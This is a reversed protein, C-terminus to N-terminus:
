EVDGALLSDSGGDVKQMFNILLPNVQDAQGFHPTHGGGPITHFEAQSIMEGLKVGLPYPFNDDKEGWIIQMPVDKVEALEEYFPLYNYVSENFALSVFAFECGRYKFQEKILPIFKYADLTTDVDSNKKFVQLRDLLVARKKADADEKSYAVAAGILTVSKYRSPEDAVIEAAIAGGLSIGLLHVPKTIKLSDLLEVTQQAYVSSNYKLMPRDSWGRGYFDYRLTTYGAEQLAKVNNNYVTKPVTLGPIMVVIPASDNAEVLEYHTVGKSLNIYQGGIAARAEADLKPKSYLVIIVILFALPPLLLLGGLVRLVIKKRKKHKAM